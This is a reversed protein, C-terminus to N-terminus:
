IDELALVSNKPRAAFTRYNTERVLRVQSDLHNEKLIKQAFQFWTMAQGDTFHHIGYKRKGAILTELIYRALHNADTPCGVQADTIHITEGKKAKALLTKYFNHGFESYLWSTRVIHYTDLIEGIHVEGALKSRGYTNIPNPPDTTLYPAGKNGDFVYDTSIHV